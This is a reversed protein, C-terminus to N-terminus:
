SVICCLVDNHAIKGIQMCVIVKKHNQKRPPPLPLQPPQRRPHPFRLTSKPLTIFAYAIWHSSAAANGVCTIGPRRPATCPLSRSLCWSGRRASAAGCRTSTSPCILSSIRNNRSANRASHVPCRAVNVWSTWCCCPNQLLQKSLFFLFLFYSSSLLIILEIINCHFCPADSDM